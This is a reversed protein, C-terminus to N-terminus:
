KGGEFCRSSSRTTCIRNSSNSWWPFLAWPRYVPIGLLGFWPRGLAPQYALMAATWQSAAWLGLAIIALVILIQGIL